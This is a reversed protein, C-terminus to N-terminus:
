VRSAGWIMEMQSTSWGRPSPRAIMKHKTSRLTKERIRPVLAVIVSADVRLEHGWVFGIDNRYRGHLCRVWSGEQIDRFLPNRQRLLTVRDLPPVIVPPRNHYVMMLNRVADQVDSQSGEIFIYRPIGSQTVISAISTKRHSLDGSFIRRAIQKILSDERM